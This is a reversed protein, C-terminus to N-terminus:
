KSQDSSNTTKDNTPLTASEEETPENQEPDKNVKPHNNDNSYGWSCSKGGSFDKVRNLADLERTMNTKKSKKQKKNDNNNVSEMAKQVISHPVVTTPLCRCDSDHKHHQNSM